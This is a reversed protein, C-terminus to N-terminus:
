PASTQPVLSSGCEGGTIDVYVSVPLALIVPICIVPLFILLLLVVFALIQSLFFEIVKLHLMFCIKIDM